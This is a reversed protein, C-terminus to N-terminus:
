AQRWARTLLGLEPAEDRTQALPLVIGKNEDDYGDFLGTVGPLKGIDIALRAQWAAGGQYTLAAYDANPYTDIWDRLSEGGSQMFAVRQRVGHKLTVM